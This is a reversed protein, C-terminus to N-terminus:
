RDEQDAYRYVALGRTTVQTVDGNEALTAPEKCDGVVDPGAVQRLLGFIPSLSCPMQAEAHGAFLLIVVVSAVVRVAVMM